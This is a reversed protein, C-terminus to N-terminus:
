AGTVFSQVQNSYMVDFFIVEFCFTRFEGFFNGFVNLTPSFWKLSKQEKRSSSAMYFAWFIQFNNIRLFKIYVFM